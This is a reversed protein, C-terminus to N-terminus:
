RLFPSSINRIAPANPTPNIAKETRKNAAALQKKDEVVQLDYTNLLTKAAALEACVEYGRKEAEDRKVEAATLDIARDHLERVADNHTMSESGGDIIERLEEYWENADSLEKRLQRNAQESLQLRNECFENHPTASM